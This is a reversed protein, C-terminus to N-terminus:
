QYDKLHEIKEHGRMKELAKAEIQRVRERTVGFEKGVEELTYLIGDYRGTRMEIIKREKKNLIDLVEELKESLIRNSTDEIPTSKNTDALLDAYSSAEEGSSGSSLPKELSVAEQDTKRIAFIKEVTLGMENAIEEPTPERGLNQTFIHMLKRYRGITEIMHVPIRITRSKDALSRTISQRIWHTAYTSFKFGKRYDFKDIAKYLGFNGEQILDLLSLDPSRNIYRKAVSVVLRLNRMFLAKKAEKDKNEYVLKGIEMEEKATMLPYRGIDKLYMQISDYSAINISEPLSEDKFVDGLMGGVKFVDINNEKLSKEIANFVVKSELTEPIVGHITEEKVYGEKASDVLKKIKKVYREAITEKKNSSVKKVVRKKATKKKKSVAKKYAKKLPRKITKKKNIKKSVKKTMKKKKVTIM